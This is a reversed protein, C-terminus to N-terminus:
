HDYSIHCTHGGKLIEVLISISFNEPAINRIVKGRLVSNTNRVAQEVDEWHTYMEGHINWCVSM